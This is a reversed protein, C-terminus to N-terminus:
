RNVSRLVAPLQWDGSLRQAATGPLAARGGGSIVVTEGAKPQGVDLCAL